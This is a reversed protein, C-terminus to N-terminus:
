ALNSDRYPETTYRQDARTVNRINDGPTRDILINYPDIGARVPQGDVTATITVDTGTVHQKQLYLM